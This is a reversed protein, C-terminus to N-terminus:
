QRPMVQAAGQVVGDDERGACSDPERGAADGKEGDGFCDDSVGNAELVRRLLIEATINDRKSMMMVSGVPAAANGRPGTIQGSSAPIQKRDEM